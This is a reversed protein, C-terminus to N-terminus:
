RNFNILSGLAGLIALIGYMTFYAKLSALGNNFIEQNKTAIGRQILTAAKFLFFMLVCVIAAVIIVVVMLAVVNNSVNGGPVYNVFYQGIKAEEALLLLVLLGMCVFGVISLFKAWRSAESLNAAASNDVQLDLISQNEEM